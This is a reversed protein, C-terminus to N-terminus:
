TLIPEWFQIRFLEFWSLGKDLIGKAGAPVTKLTFHTWVFNHLVRSDELRRQLPRIDSASTNTKRQVWSLRRADQVILHKKIGPM